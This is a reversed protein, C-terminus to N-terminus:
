AAPVRWDSGDRAIANLMVLLKRMCAVLVVKPPKGSLRAAFAAIVPNCRKAVLAAMYLVHRVAARGAQIHRRGRHAGSDRDYPAVGVLAAVERRSLQGLEPLLAILTAVLVPGVGPVSRLRRALDSRGPDAALQNAILMDIGTREQILSTQRRRVARALAADKLHELQNSCDILWDCLQRRYGTLEILRALAPPCRRVRRSSLQATAQAIVRADVTDNKVLRGNARAFQRIRGAAFRRADFPEALHQLVATEYGGSAELGVRHVGHSALWAALDTFGEPSNAFRATDDEPWLAVDLWAKSVDIGAATVMQAM